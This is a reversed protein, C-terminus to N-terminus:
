LGACGAPARNCGRLNMQYGRNSKQTARLDFHRPRLSFESSESGISVLFTMSRALSDQLPYQLQAFLLGINVSAFVYCVFVCTM